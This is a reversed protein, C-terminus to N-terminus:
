NDPSGCVLWTLLLVRDTTDLSPSGAPPMNCAYVQDLVAGRNAYLGAYTSLDRDSQLADPAHCGTCERAIVAAVVQRYSPALTPCSAPLDQPCDSASSKCAALAVTLVGILRGSRSSATRSRM